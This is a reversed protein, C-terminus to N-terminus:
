NSMQPSVTLVAELTSLLPTGLPTETLLVEHFRIECVHRPPSAAFDRDFTLTRHLHEPNFPETLAQNSGLM